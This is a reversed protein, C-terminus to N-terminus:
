EKQLFIQECKAQVESIHSELEQCFILTKSFNMDSQGVKSERCNNQLQSDNNTCARYYAFMENPVCVCYSVQSSKRQYAILKIIGTWLARIDRLMLYVLVGLSYERM